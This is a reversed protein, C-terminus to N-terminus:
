IGKRYYYITLVGGGLESLLGGFFIILFWYYHPVDWTLSWMSIIFGLIFFVHTLRQAKLEILKDREDTIDMDQDDTAMKYIIHFIIHVVIRAGISVGMFILFTKGWFPLDVPSAWLQQSYNIIVYWGFFFSITWGSVVSFITKQEQFSM